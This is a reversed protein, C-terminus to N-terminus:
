LKNGPFEALETLETQTAGGCMAPNVGSGIDPLRRAFKALLELLRGVLNHAVDFEGARLTLLVDL